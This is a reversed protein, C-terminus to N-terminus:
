ADFRRDDRAVRGADINFRPDAWVHVDTGDAAPYFDLATPYASPRPLDPVVPAPKRKPPVAWFVGGVVLVFLLPLVIWDYSMAFLERM